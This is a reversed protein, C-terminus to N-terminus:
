GRRGGRWGRERAAGPDREVGRAGYPRGVARLARFVAVFIKWSYLEVTYRYILLLISYFYLGSSPREFVIKVKLSTFILFHPNLFYVLTFRYFGRFVGM